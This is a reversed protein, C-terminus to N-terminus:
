VSEIAAVMEIEVIAGAPLGAVQVTSRAPKAGKLAEEYLANVTAFHSLDTLFITTKIVSAFSAGTAALVAEANTLVQKTQAEIGGEVLKGTRPDLGIQGSLFVLDGFKAAKSYPGIAAPTNPVESIFRIKKTM